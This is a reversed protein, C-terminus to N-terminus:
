AVRYVTELKGNKNRIYGNMRLKGFAGNNITSRITFAESNSLSPYKYKDMQHLLERKEKYSSVTASTRGTELIWKYFEFCLDYAEKQKKLSKDM